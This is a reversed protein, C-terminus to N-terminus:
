TSKFNAFVFFAFGVGGSGHEALSESMFIILFCKVGTIKDLNISLATHRSTVLPIDRQKKGAM